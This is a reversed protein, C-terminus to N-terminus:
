KKLSNWENMWEDLRINNGYYRMFPEHIKIFSVPFICYGALSSRILNQLDFTLTVCRNLYITAIADVDVPTDFDMTSSFRHACAICGTTLNCQGSTQDHICLMLHHIISICMITYCKPPNNLETHQQCQQSTHGQILANYNILCMRRKLHFM